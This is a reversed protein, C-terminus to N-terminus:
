RTLKNTTDQWIFLQGVNTLLLVTVRSYVGTESVKAEVCVQRLNIQRYYM